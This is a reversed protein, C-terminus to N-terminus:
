QASVSGGLSKVASWSGTWADEELQGDTGTAYVEMNGSVPDYVATPSPEISGNLTGLGSWGSSSTRADEQLDGGSGTAYM